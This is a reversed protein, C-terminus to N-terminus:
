VLGNEFMIPQGHPTAEAARQWGRALDAIVAAEAHGKRELMVELAALWNLYYDEVHAASQAAVPLTAGDAFTTASAKIHGSFVEAWEPWDFVGANHLSITLAFLKAQWPSIFHPDSEPDCIGPIAPFVQAFPDRGAM